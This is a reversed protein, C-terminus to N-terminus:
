AATADAAWERVAEFLRTEAQALAAELSLSPPSIARASPSCGTAVRGAFIRCPRGLAACADLLSGTAKGGLSSADFRGEGSVVWDAREIRAPLDLWDAILDFGPTLRAGLAAMLGFAIGGAAGAGPATLLSATGATRRSETLSLLQAALPKALAEHRDLDKAKLGKQPGFVAAAGQPGFLPNTVDCAVVLPPLGTLPEGEITTIKSWDAPRPTLPHGDRDVFRYGLASLAGFGLDSTASGGVGLVIQGAGLPKAQALLEGTGFSTCTWPDRERPSLRALGSAQAMEAVMLREPAAAGELALRALASPPVRKTEVLGVAATIPRGLPDHCHVPHTEGQVAQTLASCFGEGGDSLTIVETSWSPQATAIARAAIQGAQLASLSGRFKDFALLVHPM